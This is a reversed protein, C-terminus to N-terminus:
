CIQKGSSNINLCDINHDIKIEWLIGLGVEVSYIESGDTQIGTTHQYGTNPNEINFYKDTMQAHLKIHLMM